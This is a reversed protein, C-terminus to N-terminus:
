CFTQAPGNRVRAISIRKLTFPLDGHQFGALELVFVFDAM